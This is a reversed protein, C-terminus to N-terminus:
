FLMSSILKKYLTFFITIDIFIYQNIQLSFIMLCAAILVNVKKSIVQGTGYFQYVHLSVCFKNSFTINLTMFLHLIFNGRSM